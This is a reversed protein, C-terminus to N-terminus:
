INLIRQVDEQVKATTYISRPGLQVESELM